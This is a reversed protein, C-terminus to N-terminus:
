SIVMQKHNFCKITQEKSYILCVYWSILSKERGPLKVMDDRVILFYLVDTNKDQVSFMYACVIEITINVPSIEPKYCKLATSLM